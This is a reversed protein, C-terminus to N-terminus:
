IAPQSFRIAEDRYAPGMLNRFVPCLIMGALSTPDSAAGRRATIWGALLDVMCLVDDRNEDPAIQWDSKLLDYAPLNDELRLEVILYLGYYALSLVILIM